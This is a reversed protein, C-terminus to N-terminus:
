MILIQMVLHLIHDSDDLDQLLKKLALEDRLVWVVRKMTKKINSETTTHCKLKAKNLSDQVRRVSRLLLEKTESPLIECERYETVYSQVQLIIHQLLHIKEKIGHLVTPAEAFDNYFEVVHRTTQVLQVLIQSVSAIGGTVAILEAMNFHGAITLEV